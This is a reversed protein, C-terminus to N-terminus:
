NTGSEDFKDLISKKEKKLPPLGEAVKISTFTSHSRHDNLIINYACCDTALSSSLDRTENKLLQCYCLVTFANQTRGKALKLVLFIRFSM